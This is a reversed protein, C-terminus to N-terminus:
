IVYFNHSCWLGFIVMIIIIQFHDVKQIHFFISYNINM